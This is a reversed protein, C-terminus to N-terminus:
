RSQRDARRIWLWWAGLPVASAALILAAGASFRDFWALEAAVVLVEAAFLACAFRASRLRRAARLRRYEDVSMGIARWMGRRNWGAFAAAVATFSWLTVAWVAEWAAIGDRLVRWSLWAFVAVIAAEGVAVVAVRRRYSAVMKRVPADGVADASTQWLAALSDWERDDATM